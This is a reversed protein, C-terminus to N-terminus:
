LLQWPSLLVQASLFSVRFVNVTASNYVVVGDVRGM